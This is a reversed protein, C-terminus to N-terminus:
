RLPLTLLLLEHNGVDLQIYIGLYKGVAHHKGLPSYVLISYPIFMISEQMFTFVLCYFIPGECISASTAMRKTNGRTISVKM